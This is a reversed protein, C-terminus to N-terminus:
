RRWRESAAESHIPPLSLEQPVDPPGPQRNDGEGFSAIGLPMWTNNAEKDRKLIWKYSVSFRPIRGDDLLRTVRILAQVVEAKDIKRPPKLDITCTGYFHEEIEESWPM